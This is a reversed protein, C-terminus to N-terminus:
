FIPYYPLYPAWRTVKSLLNIIMLVGPPSVLKCVADDDVDEGLDDDVDDGGDDKTAEQSWIM